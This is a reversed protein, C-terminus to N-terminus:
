AEPSTPKAPAVADHNERKVADLERSLDNLRKQEARRASARRFGGRMTAFGLWLIVASGVGLLVVGASTMNISYTGVTLTAAGAGGLVGAAILLGAIIILLLGALVM